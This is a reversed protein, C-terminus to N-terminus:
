IVPKTQNKLLNIFEGFILGFYLGILSLVFISEPSFTKADYPRPNPYLKSIILEFIFGGIFVFAYSILRALMYNGVEIKKLLGAFLVIIGMILSRFAIYSSGGGWIANEMERSSIDLLNIKFGGFFVILIAAIIPFILYFLELYVVLQKDISKCFNIYHLIVRPYLFLTAISFLLYGFLTVAIDYSSKGEGNSNLISFIMFGAFVSYLIGEIALYARLLFVKNIM